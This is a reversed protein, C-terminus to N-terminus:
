FRRRPVRTSTVRSPRRPVAPGPHASPLPRSQVHVRRASKPWFGDAVRRLYDDQVIVLENYSICIRQVFAAVDALVADPRRIPLPPYGPVPALPSDPHILPQRPETYFPNLPNCDGRYSRGVLEQAAARIDRIARSLPEVEPGLPPLTPSTCAACPSHERLFFHASVGSEIATAFAAM